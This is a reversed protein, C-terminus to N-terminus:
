RPGCWPGIATSTPWSTTAIRHRCPRRRRAPDARGARTCPWRRRWPSSWCCAPRPPARRRLVSRCGNLVAARVYALRDRDPLLNRACLRAFVDQVVDEATPRDGVVLVALRVLEAHRERFLGAVDSAAVPGSREPAPLVAAIKTVGPRGGSGKIADWTRVYLNSV